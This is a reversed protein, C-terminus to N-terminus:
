CDILLTNGIRSAHTYYLVQFAHTVVFRYLPQWTDIHGGGRVIFQHGRSWKRLTKTRGVNKKCQQETPDSFIAGEILEPHEQILISTGTHM